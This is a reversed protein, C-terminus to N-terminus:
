APPANLSAIRGALPQCIATGEGACVSGEDCENQEVCSTPCGQQQDEDNCIMDKYFGCAFRTGGCASDDEVTNSRQVCAHQVCEVVKRKGSACSESCMGDGKQCDAASACCSEGDCCINNRGCGTKCQADRDCHSGDDLREICRGQLCFAAETNCGGDARCETVCGRNSQDRRGLVCIARAYLGCDSEGECMSDDDVSKSGCVGEACVAEGATGQCTALDDCHAARTYDAPCDGAVGCCDVGAAINAGCCVGNRGCVGSVCDSGAACRRGATTADVCTGDCRAGPECDSDSACAAPPTAGNAGGGATSRAPTNSEVSNRGPAGSGGASSVVAAPTGAADGTQASPQSSSESAPEIRTCASASVVM